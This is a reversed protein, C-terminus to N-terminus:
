AGGVPPGGYEEEGAQDDARQQVTGARFAGAGSQSCPPRRYGSSVPVESRAPSQRIRQLHGGAPAAVGGPLPVVSPRVQGLYFPRCMLFSRMARSM